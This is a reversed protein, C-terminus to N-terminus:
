EKMLSPKLVYYSFYRNHVVSTRLSYLVHFVPNDPLLRESIVPSQRLMDFSLAEILVIDPRRALIVDEIKRKEEWESQARYIIRAIERDNLGGRDLTTFTSYYPIIGALGTSLVTNQPFTDNLWEGVRKWDRMHATEWKLIGLYRTPRWRLLDYGASVGSILMGTIFVTGLIKKHTSGPANIWTRAAALAFLPIVPVIFRGYPMWDGGIHYVYLLYGCGMVGSPMVFRRVKTNLLGYAAVPFMFVGTMAAYRKFYAWGGGQYRRGKVWFTNPIWAHYYLYRFLLHPLVIMFYGALYELWIKPKSAYGPFVTIGFLGFFLFGEPRTLTSLGFFVGCVFRGTRSNKEHFFLGCVICFTFLLTELGAVAWMQIGPCISVMLAALAGSIRDGYRNISMRSLLFLLLLGLVLGPIKAALPFELCLRPLAILLIWLFNTYGEVQDGPNYVLGRGQLMHDCYRFSIFADEVTYFWYIQTGAFFLLVAGALLFFHTEFCRVRSMM